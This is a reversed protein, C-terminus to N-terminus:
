PVTLVTPNSAGARRPVSRVAITVSGPTAGATISVAIRSPAEPEQRRRQLVADRANELLHLVAQELQAPRGRVPAAVHPEVTVEVGDLAWARRAVEVAASVASAADFPKADPMADSALDRM